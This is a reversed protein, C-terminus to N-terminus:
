GRVNYPRDRLRPIPGTIAAPALGTGVVSILSSARPGDRWRRLEGHRGEERRHLQVGALGYQATYAHLRLM